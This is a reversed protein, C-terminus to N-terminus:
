KIIRFNNIIFGVLINLLVIYCIFLLIYFYYYNYSSFNPKPQLHYGRIDAVLYMTKSWYEGLIILFVGVISYFINDFNPKPNLWSGGM